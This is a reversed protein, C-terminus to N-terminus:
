KPEKNVLQAAAALAARAADFEDTKRDAVRLVGKLAALLQRNVARLEANEADIREWEERSWESGDADRAIGECLNHLRTRPDGKRRNIETDLLAIRRQVMDAVAKGAVLCKPASAYGQEILASVILPEMHEDAM